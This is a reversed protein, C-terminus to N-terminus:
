RQQSADDPRLSVRPDPQSLRAGAKSYTDEAGPPIVDYGKGFRGSGSVLSEGEM